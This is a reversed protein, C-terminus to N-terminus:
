DGRAAAVREGEQKKGGERGMEMVEVSGWTWSRCREVSDGRKPDPPLSGSSIFLECDRLESVDM